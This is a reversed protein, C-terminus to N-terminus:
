CIPSEIVSNLMNQYEMDQWLNEAEIEKAGMHRDWFRAIYVLKGEENQDSTSVALRSQCNNNAGYRERSIYLEGEIVISLRTQQDIGLAIGKRIFHDMWGLDQSPSSWIFTINNIINKLGQSLPRNLYEKWTGSFFEEDTLKSKRIKEKSVNQEIEEKFAANYFGVFSSILRSEREPETILGMSLNLSHELIENIFEQHIRYANQKKEPSRKIILENEEIAKSLDIRFSKTYGIQRNNEKTIHLLEEEYGSLIIPTESLFLNEGFHATDNGSKSTYLQISNFAYSQRANIFEYISFSKLAYNLKIVDGAKINSNM